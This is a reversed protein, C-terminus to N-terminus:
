LNFRKINKNFYESKEYDFSILDEIIKVADSFSIDYDIERDEIGMYYGAPRKWPLMLGIHSMYPDLSLLIMRKGKTAKAFSKQKYYWQAMDIQKESFAPYLNFSSAAERLCEEIQESSYPADLVIPHNSYIVPPEQMEPPKRSWEESDMEPTRAPNIASPFFALNGHEDVLIRITRADSLRQCM